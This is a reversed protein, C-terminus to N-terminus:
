SISLVMPTPVGLDICAGKASDPEDFVFLGVFEICGFYEFLKVDLFGFLDVVDLVFALYEVHQVVGEDYM